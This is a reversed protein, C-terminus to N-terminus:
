HSVAMTAAETENVCVLSCAKLLNEFLPHNPQLAPAANWVSFSGSASKLAALTTEPSIENQTLVVSASQVVPFADKVHEGTLYLNAGPVIIISNEGSEAVLITAVGSAAESTQLVHRREIGYQDFNSLTREGLSDRGATFSSVM